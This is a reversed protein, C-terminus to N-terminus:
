WRRRLAWSIIFGCASLLLLLVGLGTISFFPSSSIGPAPNQSLTHGEDTTPTAAPAETTPSPTNFGSNTGNPTHEPLSPRTNTPVPAGATQGQNSSFSATGTAANRSTYSSFFGSLLVVIGLVAAISSLWQLARVPRRQNPLRAPPASSRRREPGPILRAAPAAQRQPEHVSVAELPLAFSRPLAPQPLARVLGRTRRLSELEARCAVCTPLHAKLAAREQEGLENDLLASLQERQREWNHQHEV